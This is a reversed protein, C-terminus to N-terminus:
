SAARAIRHSTVVFTTGSPLERRHGDLWVSVNEPSALTLQLQRGQFRKHRGRELTGSYLLRGPRTGSRV